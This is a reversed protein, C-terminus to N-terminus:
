PRSEVVPPVSPRELRTAYHESFVLAVLERRSHVGVKVFIKKLHDQVTYHSVHLRVAIDQTSCGQLVLGSVEQERPSLAYASAVATPIQPVEEPCVVIGVRGTSPDGLMSGYLAHWGGTRRPLRSTAVEGGSAAAGGRVRAVLSTVVLPLSDAQNSSDVVEDLMRSAAPSASEITDDPGVLILGPLETTGDTKLATTLIARHIGEGIYRSGLDAVVEAEKLSFDGQVRHLAVCGWVSNGERFVARLEDGHAFGNPALIERYRKSASPVGATTANMLGVPTEAQALDAFKNVDDELFENRAVSLLHEFSAERTFHTTPLLTAPDLGLWCSAEFPVVAALERDVANFFDEMDLGLHLLDAFRSDFDAKPLLM